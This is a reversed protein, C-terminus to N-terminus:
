VAYLRLSSMRRSDDYFPRNSGACHMELGVDAGVEDGYVNRV